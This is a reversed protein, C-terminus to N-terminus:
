TDVQDKKWVAVVDLSEPWLITECMKDWNPDLRGMIRKGILRVDSYNTGVVDKSRLSLSQPLDSWIQLEFAFVYSGHQFFAWTMTWSIEKAAPSTDIVLPSSKVCGSTGIIIMCSFIQSNENHLFMWVVIFPVVGGGHSDLIMGTRRCWVTEKWSMVLKLFYVM